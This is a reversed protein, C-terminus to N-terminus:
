LVKLSINDAQMGLQSAQLSWPTFVYNFSVPNNYGIHNIHFTVDFIFILHSLKTVFNVNGVKEISVVNIFLYLLLYFVLRSPLSSKCLCRYIYIRNTKSCKM